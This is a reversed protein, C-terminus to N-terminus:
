KMEKVHTEIFDIEKQELKFYKYIQEDIDAITTNWNIISTDSFNLVPVSSWVKNPSHQTVKFVGLLARFFKTKFYKIFNNADNESNFPGCVLYTDAAGEGPFGIFPSTLVEGFKGTGNGEPIFVKYKTTYDNQQLYESRIYKSIRGSPIKGLLKVYDTKNEVDEFFLEPLKTLINSVIKNGTGKGVVEKIYPNDIFCKDSFRYLGQSAVITDLMQSNTKQVKVQISSLQDYQSFTGIPGFVRNADRITIAIGGKIQTQPFIDASNDTYFLVKFHEDNLMKKNWEKPTQGANFLFRAPHILEVVDSLKYSETMFKDYLPNARDGENQINEQYPPNGIIFDFKM